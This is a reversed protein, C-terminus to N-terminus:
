FRMRIGFVCSGAAHKNSVQQSTQAANTPDTITDHYVMIGAQEYYSFRSQRLPSPLYLTINAGQSGNLHDFNPPTYTAKIRTSFDSITFDRGGGAGVSWSEKMYNTTSLQAWGGEVGFFWYRPARVFLSSDLSRIHGKSNDVTGDNTKRAANYTALGEAVFRPSEFSFGGGIAASVPQFGAGNLNLTPLVVFHPRHDFTFPLEQEHDDTTGISMARSQNSAAEGDSPHPYSPSVTEADGVAASTQMPITLDQASSITAILISFALLCRFCQV